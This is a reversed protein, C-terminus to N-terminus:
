ASLLVDGVSRTRQTHESASGAQVPCLAAQDGEVRRQEVAEQLSLGTQLNTRHNWRVRVEQSELERLVGEGSLSGPAPQSCGRRLGTRFVLRRDASHLGSGSDQSLSSESAWPEGPLPSLAHERPAVLQARRLLLSLIVSDGVGAAQEQLGGM